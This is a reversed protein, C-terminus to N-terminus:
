VFTISLCNYWYQYSINRFWYFINCVSHIYILTSKNYLQTYILLFSLIKKHTHNKLVFGLFKFIGVSESWNRGTLNLRFQNSAVEPPPSYLPIKDMILAVIDKDVAKEITLSNCYTNSTDICYSQPITPDEKSSSSLARFNLSPWFYRCCCCPGRWPHSPLQTAGSDNPM